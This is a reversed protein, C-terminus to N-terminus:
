SAREKARESARKRARARKFRPFLPRLFFSSPAGTCARASYNFANERPFEYKYKFGNHSLSSARPFRMREGSRTAETGRAATAAERRGGNEARSIVGREGEGGEQRGDV